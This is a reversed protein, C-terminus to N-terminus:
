AGGLVLEPLSLPKLDNFTLAFHFLVPSFGTALVSYELVYTGLADIIPQRPVLDLASNLYIVNPGGYHHLLLDFSGHSEPWIIQRYENGRGTAKLPTPDTCPAGDIRQLRMATDFAAIDTRYNHIDVYLACGERQGTHDGYTLYPGWRLGQPVLQRSYTPSWQRERVARMVLPVVDAYRTFTRANSASYALIGERKVGAQQLM